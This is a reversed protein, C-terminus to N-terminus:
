TKLVRFSYYRFLGVMVKKGNLETKPTLQPSKDQEVKQVSCQRINTYELNLRLQWM